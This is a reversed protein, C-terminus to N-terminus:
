KTNAAQLKRCCEKEIPIQRKNYCLDRFFFLTKDVTSPPHAHFIFFCCIRMSAMPLSHPLTKLLIAQIMKLLVFYQFQEQEIRQRPDIGIRNGMLQYLLKM